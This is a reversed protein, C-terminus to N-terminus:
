DQEKQVEQPEQEKQKNETEKKDRFKDVVHGWVIGAATTVVGLLVLLGIKASKSSLLRDCLNKKINIGAEEKIAEKIGEMVGAIIGEDPSTNVFTKANKIFSDNLGFKKFDRQLIVLAAALGMAGGIIKGSKHRSNTTNVQLMNFGKKYVVLSKTSIYFGITKKSM